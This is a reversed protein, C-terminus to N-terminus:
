SEPLLLGGIFLVNVPSFLLVSSGKFLEIAELAFAAFEKLLVFLELFESGFVIELCDLLLDVFLSLSAHPSFLVGFSLIVLIFPIEFFLFALGFFNFSCLNVIIRLVKLDFL